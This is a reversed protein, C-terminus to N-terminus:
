DAKENEGYKLIADVMLWAAEFQGKDNYDVLKAVWYEVIAYPINYNYKQVAIRIAAESPFRVDERQDAPIIKEVYMVFAGGVCYCNSMIDASAFTRPEPFADQIEQLTVNAM